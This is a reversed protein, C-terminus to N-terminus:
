QRRERELLWDLLAARRFRILRARGDRGRTLVLCPIQGRRAWSTLTRPRVRLISAAELPTLLPEAELDPVAALHHQRSM